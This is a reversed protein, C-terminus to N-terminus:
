SGMTQSREAAAAVRLVQAVPQGSGAVQSGVSQRLQGADVEFNPEGCALRGTDLVIDAPKGGQGVVDRGKEAMEESSLVGALAPVGVLLAIAFPTRTM